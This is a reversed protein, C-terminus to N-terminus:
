VPVLYSCCYYSYTFLMHAIIIYALCTSYIGNCLRFTDKYLCIYHDKIEPSSTNLDFGHITPNFKQCLGIEYRSM